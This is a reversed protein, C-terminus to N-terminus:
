RLKYIYIYISLSLSLSVSLSDVYELNNRSTQIKNTEGGAHVFVCAYVCVRVYMCVHINTSQTSLRYIQCILIRM